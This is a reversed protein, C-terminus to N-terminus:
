SLLMCYPTNGMKCASKITHLSTALYKRISDDLIKSQAPLCPFSGKDLDIMIIEEIPLKSLEDLSNSTIGVMFPM